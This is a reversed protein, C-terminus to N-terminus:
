VKMVNRVKTQFIIQNGEKWTETRLTDGPIVRSSFRVKLAKIRSADNEAWGSIVHRISFAMSCLGHLIPKELGSMKAFAPDIHLPNLDGSGIRYIAAQDTSTKEEFVADPLRPPVEAGPKEHVSSRPGGFNGSGVQFTCVQQLALKRGTTEDYTTVEFLMLAGSGKDLIDVIRTESRLNAESPLEEYIEIYQEGHLLRTYDFQIGPWDVAGVARLGPVVIFTPLPLFNESMEYVYRLDARVKAGVGLAYIIVDKTTYQFFDPPPIHAKAVTPEM